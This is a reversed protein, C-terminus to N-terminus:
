ERSKGVFLLMIIGPSLTKSSVADRCIMSRSHFYSAWVMLSGPEMLITDGPVVLQFGSMFIKQTTPEFRIDQYLHSTKM